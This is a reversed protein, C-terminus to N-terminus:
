MLAFDDFAAEIDAIIHSRRNTFVPVRNLFIVRSRM